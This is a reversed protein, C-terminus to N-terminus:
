ARRVRIAAVVGATLLLVVGLPSLSHLTSNLADGARSSFSPGAAALALLAASGLIPGGAACVCALAALGPASGRATTAMVQGVLFGTLILPLIILIPTLTLALLAGGLMAM